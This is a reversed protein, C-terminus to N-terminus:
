SFKRRPWTAGSCRRSYLFVTKASACRWPAASYLVSVSCFPPLVSEPLRNECVCLAVTRRFVSSICFLIAASRSQIRSATNRLCVAGRHPPICFQCLVFHRCSLSQFVTKVSAGHHPRIQFKIFCFIADREQRIRAQCSKFM